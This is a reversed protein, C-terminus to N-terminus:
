DYENQGWSATRFLSFLNNLNQIWENNPPSTVCDTQNFNENTQGTINTFLENLIVFAKQDIKPNAPHRDLTDSIWFSFSQYLTQIQNKLASVETRLDTITGDTQTIQESLYQNTSRCQNLETELYIVRTKAEACSNGELRKTERNLLLAFIWPNDMIWGLIAQQIAFNDEVEILKEELQKQAERAHIFPWLFKQPDNLIEPNM